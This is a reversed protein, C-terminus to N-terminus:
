GFSEGLLAEFLGEVQREGEAQRARMQEMDRGPEVVARRAVSAFEEQLHLPALVYPNNKKVM